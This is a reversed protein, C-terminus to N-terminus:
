WPHWNVQVAIFIAFVGPGALTLALGLKALKRDRRPQIFGIIAALLGLPVGFSYMVFPISVAYIVGQNDKIGLIVASLVALQIVLMAAGVFTSAFGFESQKLAEDENHTTMCTVKQDFTFSLSRTWPITGVRAFQPNPFRTM